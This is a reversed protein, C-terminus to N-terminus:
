YVIKHINTEKCKIQKNKRQQSERRNNEFYLYNVQQKCNKKPKTQYVRM